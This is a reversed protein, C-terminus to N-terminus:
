DRPSPSTYLLCVYARGDIGKGAVIIGTEDSDATATVAPDVAVVIRTMEPLDLVRHNDIDGIAWLAGEVDELLEGLLEQRGLRTGEYRIRLEEIAANSLNDRNDYTSGRTVVVSGDDRKVLSRVLPKSQPTTTVVVQADGKRLAPM